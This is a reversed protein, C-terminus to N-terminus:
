TPSVPPATRVVRYVVGSLTYAFAFLLPTWWAMMWVIPHPYSTAGGHTHFGDFISGAVAGFLLMKAWGFPSVQKLVTIIRSMSGGYRPRECKLPPDLLGKSM